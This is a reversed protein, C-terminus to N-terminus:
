VSFALKTVNEELKLELNNEKKNNKSQGKRGGSNLIAKKKIETLKKGFKVLRKNKTKKRKKAKEWFIPKYWAVQRRM